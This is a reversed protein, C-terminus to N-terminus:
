AHIAPGLHREPQTKSWSGIPKIWEREIQVSVGRNLLTISVAIRNQKGIQQLIGELGRLPGEEVRVRQGVALTPWPLAPLGSRQIAQIDAMETEDVPTPRNNISVIYLFGPTTSIPVRHEISLRCFVYGAFLPCEITKFRDSWRRRTQYMPLCEELGRSRLATAVHREFNPKVRIAFWPLLEPQARGLAAALEV